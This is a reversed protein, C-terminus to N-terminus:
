NGQLYWTLLQLQWTSFSIHFPPLSPHPSYRPISSILTIFVVLLYHLNAWTAAGYIEELPIGNAEAKSTAVGM